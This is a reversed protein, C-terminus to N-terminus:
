SSIPFYLEIMPFARQVALLVAQCIVSPVARSIANLADCHARSRLPRMVPVASRCRSPLTWYRSAIPLIVPEAVAGRAPSAISTRLAIFRLVDLTFYNV